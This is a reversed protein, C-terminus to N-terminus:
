IKNMNDKDLVDKYVCVVTDINRFIVVLFLFHVRDKPTMMLKKYESQSLGCDTNSLSAKRKEEIADKVKYRNQASEDNERTHNRPLITM